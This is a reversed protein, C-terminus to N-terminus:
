LMRRWPVMLFAEGQNRTLSELSRHTTYWRRRYPGWQLIVAIYMSSNPLRSKSNKAGIDTEIVIMVIM